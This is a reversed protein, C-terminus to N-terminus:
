LKGEGRGDALAQKAGESIIDGYLAREEGTMKAADLIIKKDREAEGVRDAAALLAPLANIAAAILDADEASLYAAVTSWPSKVKHGDWPDHVWTGKTAKAMLERLERVTEATPLPTTMHLTGHQASVVRLPVV